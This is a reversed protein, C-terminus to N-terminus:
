YIIKLSIGNTRVDHKGGNGNKQTQAEIFNILLRVNDGKRDYFKFSKIEYSGYSCKVDYNLSIFM